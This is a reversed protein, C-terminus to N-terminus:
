VEAVLHHIMNEYQTKRPTQVDMQKDMRRETERHMWRLHKELILM